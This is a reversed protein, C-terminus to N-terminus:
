DEIFGIAKAFIEMGKTATEEIFRVQRPFQMQPRTPDIVFIECREPAYAYLGAAPYVVLSTGVILLIDATSVEEAAKVINPVAEGFFVVHPRLQSRSKGGKEGLRVEGYGIDTVEEESFNDAETFSAEPRVKTLEGHLHIINSSGAREHLNDINQTVIVVDFDREMRALLLHAGNPRVDELQRRRQNFFELVRGPQEQWAEATALKAMENNNWLGGAGRFPAIGSEVSIGAGSLVVLKKRKM